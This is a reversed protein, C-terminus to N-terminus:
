GIAEREFLRTFYIYALVLGVIGIGTTIYTFKISFKLISVGEFFFEKYLLVLISGLYGFADAIYILFGANGKGKFSAIIRDFLMSGLPIYAIYTGLGVITMWVVASIAQYEFFIYTMFATVLLSFIMMSFMTKVARLNNKVLVFLALIILSIIAIYIETKAFINANNKFGTEIWIEAMFNDRYDRFATLFFYMIILATLGPFFSFFLQKKDKNSMPLRESRNLIDEETPDPAKELWWVAILLPIIFLAGTYFPMWFESVGYNLILYKGISKTVGSAMIFSASLITALIETSNRGELYSFVLGWIMGLPLGNLFLFVFNYPADVLAFGLLASEALLIFGIILWPRHKNKLESIVKIGIFKSLTYGIVQAIILIVKYNLGWLEIGEFTGVAFPKRFAYMSFYVLFAAAGTPLIFSIKKLINKTNV